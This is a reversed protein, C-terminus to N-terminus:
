ALATLDIPSIKLAGAAPGNGKGEKGHCPACYSMFMEQGSAPSTAPVTAHEIKKAPEQAFMWMSVTIVSAFCVASPLRM